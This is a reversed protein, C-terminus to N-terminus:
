RDGGREPGVTSPRRRGEVERAATREPRSSPAAPDPSTTQGPAPAVGNSARPTVPRRVTARQPPPPSASRRVQSDSRGTPTSKTTAAGTPSVAAGVPKQGTSSGTASAPRPAGARGQDRSVRSALTTTRSGGGPESPASVAPQSRDPTVARSPDQHGTPRGVRAQPRRAPATIVPQSTSTAARRPRAVDVNSADASPTGQAAARDPRPSPQRGATPGHSTNPRASHRRPGTRGAPNTQAPFAATGKRAAAVAVQGARSRNLVAATPAAARQAGARAAMGATGIMGRRGTRAALTTAARIQVGGPMAASLEGGAASAGATVRGSFARLSAGTTSPASAPSSARGPASLAGASLALLGGLQARLLAGAERTVKLCLWLTALGTVALLLGGVLSGFSSHGAILTGGSGADDILVAGVAFLAAWAIGVTLLFLTASAWARALSHGFRTPVLGIMLPGTAYLLAGLLIIVVKMFILGLLAVGIAGMMSLDILQWGGLITGDVAYDMLKQIGDTVSSLGLILHTVQDALDAGQAWLYPYLVIAAAVPIMRLVPIAVPEQEDLMSRAIAHTLTLPAIAVGLWMFLTRLSNVGSFAYTHAGGPSSITGAYNPVQVIWDMIQLGDQAWSRPILMRVLAGITVMFFKTALGLTWSFAGFLAGVITGFISTAPVMVPHVAGAAATAPVVLMGCGILGAIVVSRHVVSCRM